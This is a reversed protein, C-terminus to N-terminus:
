ILPKRKISFKSQMGKLFSNEKKKERYIIFNVKENLTIIKRLTFALFIVNYFVIIINKKKIM